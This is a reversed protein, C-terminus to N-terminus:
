RKSAASRLARSSPRISHERNRPEATPNKDPEIRLADGFSARLFGKAFECLPAVQTRLLQGNIRGYAMGELLYQCARVVVHYQSGLQEWSPFAEFTMENWRREYTVYADKMVELLRFDSRAAMVLERYAISEKANLHKWYGDVVVDIVSRGEPVNLYDARWTNLRKLNIYNVTAELLIARSPFHHQMAGRSIGARASVSAISTSTITSEALSLITAELVKARTFASKEEQWNKKRGSRRDAHRKLM